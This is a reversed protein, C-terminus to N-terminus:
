RTTAHATMLSLATITQGHALKPMVITTMAVIDKQEHAQAEIRLFV